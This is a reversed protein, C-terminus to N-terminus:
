YGVKGAIGEGVIFQPYDPNHRHHQVNSISDDM